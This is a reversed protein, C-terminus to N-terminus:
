QPMMRVYRIFGNGEVKSKISESTLEFQVDQKHYAKDEVSTEFRISYGADIKETPIQLLIISREGGAITEGTIADINPRYKGYFKWWEPIDSYWESDEGQVYLTKEYKGEPNILSTIIYAGEGSYNILQVMCKVPTTEVKNFAVIGLFVLTAIPIFKLLSKM